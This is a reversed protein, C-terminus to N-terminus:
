WLGPGAQDLSAAAPTAALRSERDGSGAKGFASAQRTAAKLRGLLDRRRASLRALAFATAITACAHAARRYIADDSLREILDVIAAPRDPRFLLDNPLLERIGGVASGIVPLGRAMAEIAARPMGESWSPIVFLDAADLEAEVRARGTLHGKLRVHRGIGLAQIRAEIAPRSPGDGVLTLTLDMGRAIACALASLLTAHNKVPLFSGVFILRLRGPHAPAERPTRFSTAPLRISSISATPAGPSAPYRRQLHDRSVYSGICAHRTTWRTRRAQVMGGLRESWSGVGAALPDGILEFMVPKRRRCALRAAHWGGVSPIRVCVADAWAVAAALPRCHRWWPALVWAPGRVDALDVFTIGDGDARHLGDVLNAVAVRAAVRVEDFVAAYDDFFARDFCFDDFVGAATRRFPADTVVLLRAM